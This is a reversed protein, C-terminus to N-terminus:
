RIDPCSSTLTTLHLNFLLSILVRTEMLILSKACSSAFSQLQWRSLPAADREGDEETVIAPLHDTAPLSTVASFWM